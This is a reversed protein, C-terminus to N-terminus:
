HLVCLRLILMCGLLVCLAMGPHPPPYGRELWAARPDSRPDPRDYQEALRSDSDQGENGSGHSDNRRRTMPPGYM